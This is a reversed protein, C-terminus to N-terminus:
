CNALYEIAVRNGGGVVELGSQSEFQDKGLLRLKNFLSLSFFTYFYTYQHYNLDFKCKFHVIMVLTFTEM